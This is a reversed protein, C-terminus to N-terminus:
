PTLYHAVRSHSCTFAAFLVDHPAFEANASEIALQRRSRPHHPPQRPFGSM